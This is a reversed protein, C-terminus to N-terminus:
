CTSAKWLFLPDFSCDMQWAWPRSLKKYCLSHNVHQGTLLLRNHFHPV